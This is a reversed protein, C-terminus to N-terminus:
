QSYHYLIANIKINCYRFSPGIRESNENSDCLIHKLYTIRTNIICSYTYRICSVLYFLICCSVLYFSLIINTQM